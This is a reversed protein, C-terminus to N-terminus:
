TQDEVATVQINAYGNYGYGLQNWKPKEPQIRGSSDTARIWINYIGQRSIEWDWKWYKWAYPHHDHSIFEAEEWRNGEDVSVEVRTIMGTGSWAIGRITHIGMSLIDLHRPEQIITNVRKERVPIPKSNTEPKPIYLYDDTQFPGTFVQDTLIIRTLWKVSAMAYWDPVIVRYPYGHHFPIPDDNMEYAILTDRHLAKDLPLSREYCVGNLQDAGQFIVEKVSSDIGTLKLLHSLSVGKWKGQSIAGDGWPLGKPKPSFSTRKNGACEMVTVLSRSPMARLQSESFSRKKKVKGEIILPWSFSPHSPYPFHNRKYFLNKPTLFDQTDHIPTECNDPEATVITRQLPKTQDRKM